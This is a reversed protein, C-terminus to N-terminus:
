DQQFPAYHPQMDASLQNNEYSGHRSSRAGQKQTVKLKYLSIYHQSFKELLSTDLTCHAFLLCRLLSQILFHLSLPVQSTRTTVAERMFGSDQKM